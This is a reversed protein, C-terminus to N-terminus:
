RLIHSSVDNLRCIVLEVDSNRTLGRLESLLKSNLWSSEVVIVKRPKRDLIRTIMARVKSEDILTRTFKCKHQYFPYTVALGPTFIGLLPHIFLIKVNSSRDSLAFVKLFEEQSTYPKRYAPIIVVTKNEVDALALEEARKVNVSIRPNYLAEDGSYMFVARGGPNSTPSYRELLKANKKLFEFATHLTPHGRSKYELLEWLRGEKIHQKTTRIEKNLMYLNHVALLEIRESRNLELLEQPTYKSCVPCSCPFYSLEKLNKTGFETMYREDRAYLIYSASDFLDAGAAVLFPIIMPHGVGFVHLPKNPPLHLKVTIVMEVLKLYEYKELMVTPSGVAYIDYPLKRALVASRLLLDKYPAGQVPYVWMEETNEILPLAEIGRKYTEYVAKEAEEYTMKSGTPVDLIVAIDAGIEAEYKVITKNDVEVGGYVLIQYGGSDTMITHKWGLEDHLSKVLGQNRKYFLYANTIIGNFGIEYIKGLSPVQRTPDVVPFLFPTELTGHRTTLKGIRGALDVRKVEFVM